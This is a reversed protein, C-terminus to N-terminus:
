LLCIGIFSGMPESYDRPSLFIWILLPNIKKIHIANAATAAPATM